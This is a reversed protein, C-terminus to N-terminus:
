RGRGELPERVTSFLASRQDSRRRASASIVWRHSGCTFRNRCQLMQCTRPRSRSRSTSVLRRTADGQSAMCSRSSAGDGAMDVVVVSASQVFEVLTFHVGCFGRAHAVVAHNGSQLQAPKSHCLTPISPSASCRARRTRTARRPRGSPDSRAAPLSRQGWAARPPASRSGYAAARTSPACIACRDVVRRSARRSRAPSRASLCRSGGRLGVMVQAPSAALLWAWM